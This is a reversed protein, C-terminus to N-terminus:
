LKVEWIMVHADVCSKSDHDKEPKRWNIYGCGGTLMLVTKQSSDSITKPISKYATRGLTVQTPLNRSEDGIKPTPSHVEEITSEPSPMSIETTATSTATSATDYAASSDSDESVAM